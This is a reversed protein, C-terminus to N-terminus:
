QRLAAILACGDTDIIQQRAAICDFYTHLNATLADVGAAANIKLATTQLATDLLHLQHMEAELELAKARAYLERMKDESKLYRRVSRLPLICHERWISCLTILECVEQRQWHRGQEALWAAALLMNIDAGANDQLRLCREAVSSRQYCAMAFNGLTDAM